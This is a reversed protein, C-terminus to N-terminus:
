KGASCRHKPKTQSKIDYKNDRLYQIAESSLADFPIKKFRAPLSIHEDIKGLKSKIVNTFNFPIPALRNIDQISLNKDLRARLERKATHKLLSYWSTSDHSLKTLEVLANITLHQMSAVDNFGFGKSITIRHISTPNLGIRKMSLNWKDGESEILEVGKAVYKSMYVSLGKSGTIKAPVLQGNITQKPFLWGLKHKFSDGAYRVAIPTTQASYPWRYKMGQVERYNQNPNGMNPDNSCGKPLIKMLHLVHFHLRNTETGYEPVVFYRYYDTRPIKDRVKIRLQSAISKAYGELYKKIPIDCSQGQEDTGTSHQYFAKLQEDALKLTDFVMYWGKKDATEIEFAIKQLYFSKAQKYTSQRMLRSVVSQNRPPPVYLVSAYVSKMSNERYYKNWGKQDPHTNNHLIYQALRNLYSSILTIHKTIIRSNKDTYTGNETLMRKLHHMKIHRNKVENYYRLYSGKINSKGLTEIIHTSMKESEILKINKM